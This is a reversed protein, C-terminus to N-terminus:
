DKLRPIESKGTRPRADMSRYKTCSIFARALSADLTTETVSTLVAHSLLGFVEM